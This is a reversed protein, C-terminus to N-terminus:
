TVPLAALLEKLKDIADMAKDRNEKQTAMKVRLVATSIERPAGDSLQKIADTFMEAKEWTEMDICLALKTLRKDIEALNESSGFARIAAERAEEEAASSFVPAMHKYDVVGASSEGEPIELWISFTFTTGRGLESDVSISGGMLEVLQKSINLGLGTGGFRRSISAEVQSFSKFLKDQNKKDIGIGTDMVMFFLEIRNGMRATPVIEVMIKGVTTFKTANSLLNNLIQVIRLEDGILKEPIEPSLTLFLDLGKEHIKNVHNSKVYDIMNRFDFERAELQFKGADLKSFDLINNILAHMDECGREIMNLIKRDEANIEHTLLERTNGLIGNVPTRLEHTVNAVFETKIQNVDVANEKIGALQKELAEVQSIDVGLCVYHDQVLHSTIIKTEIPFCTNNKRYAIVRVADGDIPIDTAFGERTSHFAGPLVAELALGRLSEYELLELASKNAFIIRGMKDFYFVMEMTGNFLSIYEEFKVADEM